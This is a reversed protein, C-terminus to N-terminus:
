NIFIELISKVIKRVMKWEFQWKFAAWYWVQKAMEREWEWEDIAVFYWCCASDHGGDYLCEEPSIAILTTLWNCEIFGCNPYHAERAFILCILFTSTFFLLLATVKNNWRKVDSSSFFHVFFWWIKKQSNFISRIILEAPWVKILHWRRLASSIISNTNAHFNRLILKVSMLYAM